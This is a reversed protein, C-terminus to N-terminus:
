ARAGRAAAGFVMMVGTLMVISEFM